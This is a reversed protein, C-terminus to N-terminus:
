KRYSLSADFWMEPSAPHSTHVELTLVNRGQVLLTEHGQLSFAEYGSYDHPSALTRYDVYGDRMSDRAIENGNLYAIFGDEAAVHLTLDKLGAPDENLVFTQRFYYAPSAAQQPLPTQLLREQGADRTWGFPARSATWDADSYAPSRWDEPPLQVREELPREGTPDAGPPIVARVAPSGARYRWVAGIAVPAQEQGAAAQRLGAADLVLRGATRGATQPAEATLRSGLGKIELLPSAAASSVTWEAWGSHASRRYGAEPQVTVAAEPAYARGGILVLDVGSAALGAWVEPQAPEQQLLVIRHLRSSSAATHALWELQASPEQALRAGNLFWLRAEGYDVFYASRGYGPLQEEPIYPFKVAYSSAADAAAAEKQGWVPFFTRPAPRNGEGALEAPGAVLTLDPRAALRQVLTGAAADAQSGAVYGVTWGAEQRRQEAVGTVPPKSWFLAAALILFLIGVSLPLGYNRWGGPQRRRQQM